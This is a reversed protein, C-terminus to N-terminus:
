SLGQSDPGYLISAAAEIYGTVSSKAASATRNCSNKRGTGTSSAARPWCSSSPVHLGREELYACPVHM